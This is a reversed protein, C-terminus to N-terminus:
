TRKIFDENHQSTNEIQELKNLPLKKLMAWDYLHNVDWYKLYSSEEKIM